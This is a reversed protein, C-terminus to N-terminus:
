SESKVDTNRAVLQHRANFFQGYSLYTAILASMITATTHIFVVLLQFKIAQLPPVGGIILGTMMGPISVLGYTKVSDITPVIALRISERIAGKSALKPTAALSLKSEINTGDQVFARDLNQYALNIAILGNNALMGGIPIVENATFQIAGTAITGALPLATGIFIALFSIWFVYHMVPSARSITNWSANIIIVLVCLILLWKDNIKFIYHLLFGLIILQVVARLTAVILDKIIHLGEKYSIIIPIVLLLATLGLATNSM